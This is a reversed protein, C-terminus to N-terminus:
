WKMVGQQWALVRDRLMFLGSILGSCALAMLLLAAYMNAYAAWGQAWQLYWGIGAKVGMMEAVVLTSFSAGLGMFLGVFVHPLAAPIAVRFILFSPKAGLTRAVDYYAKDVSAVGSWTLVMVPFWTALAILFVSAAWSTPFIFFCLPLLATSPIPGLIRLLPHLWYGISSSWGLAVGAIFGSLAGLAVGSGLLLASHWFSELLRPWDEIYVELLAQPPAFFPLPLWGLKATLLEWAALLLPLAILWPAARRLRTATAAQWHGAMSLLAIALAMALCLHTLSQTMPWQRTANPWYSILLAVAIWALVALLVLAFQRYRLQTSVSQVVPLEISSM